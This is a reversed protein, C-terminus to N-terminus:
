VVTIRLGVPKASVGGARRELRLTWRGRALGRVALTAHNGSRVTTRALVRYRGGRGAPRGELTLRVGTVRSTFRVVVGLRHGKRVKRPALVRVTGTKPNGTVVVGGESPATGGGPSPAPPTSPGPTTAGSGGSAGTGGSAGGGTGVTLSVTAPASALGRSDTTRYTFSDTGTYGAAPTYRAVATGGTQTAITVSGHAPGAVVSFGAITAPTVQFCSASFMDCSENIRAKVTPGLVTGSLAVDVAKGASTTGSAPAATAGPVTVPMTITNDSTDSEAIAGDPNVTMRITYGSGAAVGTIDVWQQALSAFYYDGHGPSIGMRVLAAGPTNKQCWSGGASGTARADYFGGEGWSDYMCFGVENKAGSISGGSPTLLEYRAAHPYHFHDHGGGNYYFLGPLPSSSSTGVAPSDPDQSVAPTGGPYTVQTTTYAGGGTRQGDIELVGAGNNHIVSDFRMLVHGPMTYLDISPSGIAGTDVQPVLDPLPNSPAAMGGAILAGVGGFAAVLTLPVVVRVKPRSM